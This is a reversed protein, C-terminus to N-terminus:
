LSGETAATQGTESRIGAKNKIAEIDLRNIWKILNGWIEHFGFGGETMETVAEEKTWGQVAVRYVAVATGTRDAGHQCHVLFPGKEPDAIIQLFLIIDEEDANWAQMRVQEYDLGTDEIIDRDSHFSRLNVITRIGMKKLKMMGEATPQASRYLNDSVRHLNPVGNVSLPVAWQEPRKVLTQGAELMSVFM